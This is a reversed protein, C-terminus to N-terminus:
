AALALRPPGRRIVVHRWEAKRAPREDRAAARWRPVALPEAGLARVFPLLAVALARVLASEVVDRASEASLRVLRWLAAEGRRLLWGLALAALLHGLVMAPSPLLAHVFSGAGGGGSPASAGPVHVAPDLGAGTIVERARDASMPRQDCLLQGAFDILHGDGGARHAAAADAGRAGHQGLQGLAFLSHLALQGVALAAAIGPLSRERGALPVAVAFVAAGAAVLTWLPVKACSALVHGGASLVVCVATFVAARILRLDAGARAVPLPM